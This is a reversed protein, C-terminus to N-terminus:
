FDDDMSCNISDHGDHECIACWKNPNKTGDKGAVLTDLVSSSASSPPTVMSRGAPGSSPAAPAMTLGLGQAGGGM